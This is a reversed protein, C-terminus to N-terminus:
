SGEGEQSRKAAAEAEALAGERLGDEHSAASAAAMAAVEAELTHRRTASEIVEAEAATRLKEEEARQQEQFDSTLSHRREASKVADAHAAEHFAEDDDSRKPTTPAAAASPAAPTVPPVTIEEEKPNLIGPGCSM